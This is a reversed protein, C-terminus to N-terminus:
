CWGQFQCRLGSFSLATQGTISDKVLVQPAAGALAGVVQYTTLVERSELTEVKLAPNTAHHDM